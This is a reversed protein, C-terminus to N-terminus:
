IGNGHIQVNMRGIFNPSTMELLVALIFRELAFILGTVCALGNGVEINEPHVILFTKSPELYYGHGPGIRKLSNFYLM